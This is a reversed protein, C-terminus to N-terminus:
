EAMCALQVEGEGRIKGELYQAWCESCFEHGCSLSLVKEPEEDCCVPCMFPESKSGSRTRPKSSSPAPEPPTIGAKRLMAQQDEMFREIAQEKNWGMYRLFMM